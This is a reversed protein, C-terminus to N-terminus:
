AKRRFPMGLMSLLDRSEADTRASTVTTVNMGRTASIKDYDIETFILQERIGLSHNGRGDFASEPLGRFDRVRPIAVNILRDLFDYMRWGRITVCCGIPMGRRVKFQAVSRSARTLKPKQGTILALETQADELAKINETAEGVGINVVVKEIRPAQMPSKYGHKKMMAPVIEERYKKLLRPVYGAPM